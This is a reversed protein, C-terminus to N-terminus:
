VRINTSSKSTRYGSEEEQIHSGLESGLRLESMGVDWLFLEPNLTVRRGFSVLNKLIKAAPSSLVGKRKINKVCIKPAYLFAKEYWDLNTISIGM